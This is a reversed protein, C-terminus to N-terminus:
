QSPPDISLNEAGLAESAIASTNRHDMGFHQETGAGSPHATRGTSSRGVQQPCCCKDWTILMERGPADVGGLSSSIIALASATFHFGDIRDAM